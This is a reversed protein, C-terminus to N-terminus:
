RKNGNQKQDMVRKVLDRLFLTTASQLRRLKEPDTIKELVVKVEIEKQRRM